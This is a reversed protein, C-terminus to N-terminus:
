RDGGSLLEDFWHRFRAELNESGVKEVIEGRVFIVGGSATGAIGIDAESGEGIGNVVCGMVAVSLDADVNGVWNKVKRALAEVDIETRACTPCSIVNVGRRLGLSKLISLGVEIEQVPDGSMSVRITDGIGKLLLTGIGISSKVTSDLGFGAETVGLHLPYDTKEFLYENASVTETVSSSKLSIVIDEFGAGELIRVQALASEALAVPRDYAGFNRDLSGSNAGVRIPVGYERAVKVTEIVKWEQGINGPNIRVKAAGNRISEIALRHDFHIDAIVPIRSLSSIEKLAEASEQDPVSVRVLDCGANTLKQIQDVTASINSTKTNTMSQVTVPNGGGIPVFGVQVAKSM